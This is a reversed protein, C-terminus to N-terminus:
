IDREYFCPKHKIVKIANSMFRVYAFFSLHIHYTGKDLNNTVFRRLRLLGGHKWVRCIWIWCLLRSYKWFDSGVLYKEEGFNQKMEM